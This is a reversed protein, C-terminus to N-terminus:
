QLIRDMAAPSIIHERHTTDAFIDFEGLGLEHVHGSVVAKYEKWRNGSFCCPDYQNLVQVQRRGHGVSGLIYLELYNAILYVEPATQEYDGWDNQIGARLFIPYSGAVPFSMKIRPDIAAALTTTWGGGSIGVMAISSYDFNRGLYNL